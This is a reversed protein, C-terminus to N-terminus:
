FGEHVCQKDGCVHTLYTTFPVTFSINYCIKPSLIIINININRLITNVASADKIMLEHVIVARGAITNLFHTRLSRPFSSYTISVLLYFCPYCSLSDGDSGLKRCGSTHLPLCTSETASCKFGQIKIKQCPDPSV